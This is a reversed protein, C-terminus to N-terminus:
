CCDCTIHNDQTVTHNVSIHIRSLKM